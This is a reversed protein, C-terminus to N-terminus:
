ESRPSRIEIVGRLARTLTSAPVEVVTGEGAGCALAVRFAGNERKKDYRLAERAVGTDAGISRALGLADMLAVVRRRLEAPTVGLAVGVSLEARMGAAVCDGHLARFAAGVELAHGVTHGFNLLARVGSEREDEAVVDIKARVARRIMAEVVGGPALAEATPRSGLAEANAELWALLGPERVAAVKVVEALAARYHAPALTALVAPDIWVLSPQHFAGVLNKGTPLDVGTKGGVSADVMALLSTPVSVYPVGRLWTSAAFGGVDTVVGGGVCAIVARRDAGQAGAAEWVRAVSRLTKSREGPRLVVRAPRGGLARAAADGWHREVTADTVLVATTRSAMERSLAGLPGVQVRYSRAGLPVVMPAAARALAVVASTVAEVPGTADVESHAEAYAASRAELLAELAGAGGKLLPREVGGGLRERLTASPARLTVVRACRLAEHRLARDVLAGGGVSIVVREQRLAERLAARERARFAAEGGREFISAVSAGEAAEVAQDLDIFRWGLAAAVLAGVTSKGVGPPGGLVCRLSAGDADPSSRV